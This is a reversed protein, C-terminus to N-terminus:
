AMQWHHANDNGSFQRQQMSHKINEKTMLHYSPLWIGVLLPFADFNDM